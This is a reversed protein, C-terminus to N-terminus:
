NRGIAGEANVAGRFQGSQGHVWLAAGSQFDVPGLQGARQTEAPLRRGRELRELLAVVVRAALHLHQRLLRLRDVKVVVAPHELVLGDDVLDLVGELVELRRRVVQVALELGDLRKLSLGDLVGLLGLALDVLLQVAQLLRQLVDLGGPRELVESHYTKKKKKKKKKERTGTHKSHSVSTKHRKNLVVNGAGLGLDVLLGRGQHGLALPHRRSVLNTVENM